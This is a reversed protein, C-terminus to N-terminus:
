RIIRMGTIPLPELLYQGTDPLLQIAMVVDMGHIVKGFAAFGAGDPNRLGGLDLSPQDEVCIFFETSASGPENRAMSITGLTHLIGTVGTTEHPIPDYRAIISDEFLGGQIVGIRIQKDPQNDERVVRYFVADKYAGQDVLSLFNSATVPARDSYIELTIAGMHTDMVLRPNKNRNCSIMFFPTLIPLMVVLALFLRVTPLIRVRGTEVMRVRGTEVMRVRGTEVMRVRGTEVMRVRTLTKEFM